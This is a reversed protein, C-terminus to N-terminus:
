EAIVQGEPASKSQLNKIANQIAQQNNNGGGKNSRQVQQTVNAGFSKAICAIMAYAFLVTALEYGLTSFLLKVFFFIWFSIHSVGWTLLEFNPWFMMCFSYTVPIDTVVDFLTFGIIAIQIIKVNEKAMGATLLELLTPALTLCFIVIGTMKMVQEPLTPIIFARVTSLGTLTSKIDFTWALAAAMVLLVAMGLATLASPLGNDVTRVWKEVRHLNESIDVLDWLWLLVKGTTTKPQFTNFNNSMQSRGKM